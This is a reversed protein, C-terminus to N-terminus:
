ELISRIKRMADIAAERRPKSRPVAEVRDTDGQIDNTVEDNENSEEDQIELPYLHQIARQLISGNSTRIQAARVIGDKGPILEIIKALKWQSRPIQDSLLVVDGVCPNKENKSMKRRQVQNYERLNVLYEKRWCSWFTRMNANRIKLSKSIGKKSSVPFFDPDDLEDKNKQCEPINLLRRGCLFHSPTLPSGEEIDNYLYM